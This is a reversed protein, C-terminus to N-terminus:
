FLPMQIAQNPDDLMAYKDNARNPHTTTLLMMAKYISSNKHCQKAQVWNVVLWVFIYQVM